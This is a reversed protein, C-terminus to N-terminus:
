LSSRLGIAELHKQLMQINNDTAIKLDHTKRAVRNRHFLLINGGRVFWTAPLLIPLRELVPYRLKMEAYGPFVSAWIRRAKSKQKAGQALAHNRHTGYCGSELIFETMELSLSDWPRQEFWIGLMQMVCTYFKDLRIKELEKRIYDQDMQPNARTYLWLDVFQLIGMGGATYHKAVHAILFILTDEPSMAYNHETQRRARHWGDGFYNYLEKNREPVLRTHLELRLHPHHWAIEHDTRSVYTYGMAELLPKIKSYQEAHILIDADGMRRMEPKPYLARLVMGKLPLADIGNERFSVLLKEIQGQQREGTLMQRVCGQYLAQMGPESKSVGCNIAGYYALTEIGHRRILRAADAVSFDTPLPDTKGTIATRVLQLIGEYQSTM